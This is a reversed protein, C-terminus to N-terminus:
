SPRPSGLQTRPWITGLRPGQPQAGGGMPLLSCEVSMQLERVSDAVQSWQRGALSPPCRSCSSCGTGQSMHSHTTFPQTRLQPTGQCHSPTPSDKTLLDMMSPTPAQPRAQPQPAIAQRKPSREECQSALQCLQQLLAVVNSATFPLPQQAHQAQSAAPVNSSQAAAAKNAKPERRRKTSRCKTGSPFSQDITTIVARHFSPMALAAQLCMCPSLLCIPSSGRSSCPGEAGLGLHSCARSSTNSMCERAPLPLLAARDYSVKSRPNLVGQAEVHEESWSLVGATSQACLAAEIEAACCPM